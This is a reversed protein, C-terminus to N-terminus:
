PKVALQDFVVQQLEAILRVADDIDLIAYSKVWPNRVWIGVGRPEALHASASGVSM